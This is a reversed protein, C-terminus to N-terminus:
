ISYTSFSFSAGFTRTELPTLPYNKGPLTKFDPGRLIWEWLVHWSSQKVKGNMSLIHPFKRICQAANAGLGWLKPSIWSQEASHKAKIISHHFSSLILALSEPKELVFSQWNWTQTRHCINRINNTFVPTIVLSFYTALERSITQSNRRSSARISFGTSQWMSSLNRWEKNCHSYINPCYCFYILLLGILHCFFIDLLGYSKKNKQFCCVYPRKYNVLCLKESNNGTRNVLTNNNSKANTPM